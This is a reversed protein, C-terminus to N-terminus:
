KMQALEVSLEDIIQTAEPSLEFTVPAAKNEFWKRIALFVKSFQSKPDTKSKKVIKTSRTDSVKELIPIM